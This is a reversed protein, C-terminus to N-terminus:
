ERRRFQCMEWAEEFWGKGRERKPQQAAGGYYGVGLNRKTIHQIVPTLLVLSLLLSLVVIYLHVVVKALTSNRDEYSCTCKTCDIRDGFVLPCTCASEDTVDQITRNNPCVCKCRPADEKSDAAVPSVLFVSSLCLLGICVLVAQERGM